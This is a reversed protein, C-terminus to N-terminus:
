TLFIRRVYQHHKQDKIFQHTISGCKLLDKGFRDDEILVEDGANLNILEDIVLEMDCPLVFVTKGKM